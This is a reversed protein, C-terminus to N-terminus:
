KSTTVGFQRDLKEKELRGDEGSIAQGIEPAGALIQGWFIPNTNRPGCRSPGNRPRLHGTGGRSRKIRAFANYIKVETAAGGCCAYGM